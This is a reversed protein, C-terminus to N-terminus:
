NVAIVAFPGVDRREFRPSDFLKPDFKVPRGAVPIKKPFTDYRITYTLTGDDARRLVLMTPAEFPGDHMQELLSAPSTAHGWTEIEASRDDYRALPNAYHPTMQFGWYPRFSMLEINDSLVIEDTPKGGGLDDIATILRGTWAGEQAPDRDGSPTFGTPYYDTEARQIVKALSSRIGDQVLTVSGLVAFVVSLALVPRQWHARRARLYRLLELSGFIGAVALVLKITALFRFSLLTTNMALALTSLGFWVYVLATCTLLVFAIRDRRVRLVAWVLGILCLVGLANDPVFPMPFYASGSPLFRPVANDKGLGGNLIFPAWVIAALVASIAGVLVLRLLLRRM